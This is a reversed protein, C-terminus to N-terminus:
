FHRDSNLGFITFCPGRACRPLKRKLRVAQQLVRESECWFTHVPASAQQNFDGHNRASDCPTPPSPSPLSLGRPPWCRWLHHCCGGRMGHGWQHSRKSPWFHALFARWSVLHTPLPLPTPRCPIMPVCLSLRAGRGLGMQPSLFVVPTPHTPSRRTAGFSAPNVGTQQLEGHYVHCRHRFPRESAHVHRLTWLSHPAADCQLDCTSSDSYFLQTWSSAQPPLRQTHLM